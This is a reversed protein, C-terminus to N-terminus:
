MDLERDNNKEVEKEEYENKSKNDKKLEYYEKEVDDVEKQYKEKLKDLNEEKIYDEKEVIEKVDKIMEELKEAFVEKLKEEVTPRAYDSYDTYAVLGDQYGDYGEFYVSLFGTNNLEEWNKIDYMDMNDLFEKSKLDIITEEMKERENPEIMRGKADQYGYGGDDSAFALGDETFVKFPPLKDKLDYKKVLDETSVEINDMAYETEKEVRDKFEESDLFDKIQMDVDSSMYRKSPDDIYQTLFNDDLYELMDQKYNALTVDVDLDKLKDEKEKEYEKNFGEFKDANPFLRQIEEKNEDM